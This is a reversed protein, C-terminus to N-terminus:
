RAKEIAARMSEVLGPLAEDSVELFTFLYGDAFVEDIVRVGMAQGDLVLVLRSGRDQVSIQYLSRAALRKLTFRVCFGLEVRMLDVAVFDSEVLVPINDIVVSVGSRPLTVTEARKASQYQQELYFRPALPQVKANKTSQCGVMGVLMLVLLLGGPFRLFPARKDVFSFM